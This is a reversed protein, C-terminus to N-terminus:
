RRDIIDPLAPSDESPRGKATEILEDCIPLLRYTWWDLDYTTLKTVRDRIACWDDVTGKVTIEPIRCIFQVEYDFYHRFADMMVVQSATRIKPTTTSFKCVLLSEFDAVVHGCIAESWMDVVSAWHEPTSLEFTTVILTVKGEHRLFRKRLRRAHNNVHQAFGQAIVMWIIDPTLLLPRHEGFAFYPTNVLPHVAPAHVV